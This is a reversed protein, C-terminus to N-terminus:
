NDANFNILVMTQIHMIINDEYNLIRESKHSIRVSNEYVKENTPKDPNTLM